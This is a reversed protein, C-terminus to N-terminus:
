RGCAIAANETAFHTQARASCSKKNTGLKAHWFVFDIGRGECINHEPDRKHLYARSDYLAFIAFMLLSAPCVELLDLSILVAVAAALALFSAPM